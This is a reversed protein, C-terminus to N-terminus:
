INQYQSQIFYSLILYSAHLSSYILEKQFLTILKPSFIFKWM